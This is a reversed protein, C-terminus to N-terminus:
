KDRFFRLDVLVPSPVQNQADEAAKALGQQATAGFYLEVHVLADRFRGRCWFVGPRLTWAEGIGVGIEEIDTPPAVIAVGGLWKSPLVLEGQYPGYTEVVKEFRQRFLDAAGEDRAETAIWKDARDPEDSGLAGLVGTGVHEVIDHTTKALMFSCSGVLAAMVLSIIVMVQGRMRQPKIKVLAVIGLLVAPIVAAGSFTFLAGIGLVITLVLTWIAWGSRPRM